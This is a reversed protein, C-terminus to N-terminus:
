NEDPYTAKRTRTSTRAGPKKAICCCDKHPEVDSITCSIIEFGADGVIREMTETSFNTFWEPYYHPPGASPAIICILGGPKLIKFISDMLKPVDSVHELTQGSIVADVDKLENWELSDILIDVNRGKVIDAGIYKSDPFLGRYTIGFGSVDQSGVDIVTAGKLDNGNIFNSMIALSNEHM